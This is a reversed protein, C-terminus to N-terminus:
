AALPPRWWTPGGEGNPQMRLPTPPTTLENPFEPESSAATSSHYPKDYHALKDKTDTVIDGDVLKGTPEGKCEGKNCEVDPCGSCGGCGGGDECCGGDACLSMGADLIPRYGTCRCLNGDMHERMEASNLNPTNRFLTYMAMIIGPTCFGCQSGHLVTLREQVPHLGKGSSGIGEVTTVACWDAACLPM